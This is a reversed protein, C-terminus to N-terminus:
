PKYTFDSKEGQSIRTQVELRALSDSLESIRQEMKALQEQTKSQEREESSPVPELQGQLRKVAHRFHSILEIQSKYTGSLVLSLTNSEKEVCHEPHGNKIDISYVNNLIEAIGQLLKKRQSDTWVYKSPDQPRFLSLPSDEREKITIRNIGKAYDPNGGHADRTESGRVGSLQQAINM